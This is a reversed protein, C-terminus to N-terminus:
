KKKFFDYGRLGPCASFMANLSQTSLTEHWAEPHDHVYKSIIASIQESDMEKTCDALKKLGDEDAGFITSVFLGDLLGVAYVEQKEPSLDKFQGAKLFSGPLYAFGLFKPSQENQAPSRGLLITALLVSTLALKV